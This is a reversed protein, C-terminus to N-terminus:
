HCLLQSILHHHLAYHHRRCIWIIQLPKNYDEHHAVINTKSKCVICTGRKIEGKKIQRSVLSRASREKKFKKNYIKYYKDRYDKNKENKCQHCQSCIGTKKERDVCFKKLPLLKKCKSCIKSM